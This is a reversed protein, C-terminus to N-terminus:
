PASRLARLLADRASALDNFADHEERLVQDTPQEGRQSITSVKHVCSLYASYAATYGLRLRELEKTTM